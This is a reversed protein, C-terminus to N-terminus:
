DDVVCFDDPGFSVSHLLQMAAQLKGADRLWAVAAKGEEESGMHTHWEIMKSLISLAMIKHVMPDGCKEISVKLMEDSLDILQGKTLGDYPGDGKKPAEPEQEKPAEAQLAALTELSISEPINDSM